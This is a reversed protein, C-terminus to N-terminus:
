EMFGYSKLPKGVCGTPVCFVRFGKRKRGKADRSFGRGVFM